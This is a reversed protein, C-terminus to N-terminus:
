WIKEIKFQMVNKHDIDKCGTKEKTYVKCGTKEM